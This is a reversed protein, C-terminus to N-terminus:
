KKDDGNEYQIDELWRNIGDEMFHTIDEGEFLTIIGSVTDLIQYHDYLDNYEKSIEQNLYTELEEPTSFYLVADNMGGSPYFCWYGFLIFRQRFQKTKTTDM